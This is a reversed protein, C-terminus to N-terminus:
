ETLASTTATSNSLSVGKGSLQSSEEFTITHQRSAPTKTFTSATTNLRNDALTYICFHCLAFGRCPSSPPAETECCTWFFPEKSIRETECEACTLDDSASPLTKTLKMLHGQLCRPIHLTPQELEELESKAKIPYMLSLAQEDNHKEQSTIHSHTSLQFELNKNRTLLSTLCEELTRHLDKRPM